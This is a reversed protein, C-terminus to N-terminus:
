RDEEGVSEWTDDDYVILTHEEETGDPGIISTEYWVCAYEDEDIRCIRVIPTQAIIREISNATWGAMEADAAIENERQRLDADPVRLIRIRDGVRLTKPDPM